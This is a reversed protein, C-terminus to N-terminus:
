DFYVKFAMKGFKLVDGDSITSEMAPPLRFSNIFTGNTSGSDTIYVRHTTKDYRIMAHVRSVGYDGGGISELDIDPALTNTKRGVTLGRASKQPQVRLRHSAAIMELVLEADSEFIAGHTEERLENTGHSEEQAIVLSANCVQCRTFGSANPTECNPCFIIQVTINTLAARRLAEQQEKSLNLQTREREWQECKGSLLSRQKRDLNRRVDDNLLEYVAPIEKGQIRLDVYADFLQEVSKM